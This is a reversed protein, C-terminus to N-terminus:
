EASSQAAAECSAPPRWAARDARSLQHLPGAQGRFGQLVWHLSIRRQGDAAGPESTTGGIQRALGELMRASIPDDHWEERQDTAFSIWAKGGVAKLTGHIPPPHAPGQVSLLLLAQLSWLAVPIAADIDVTLQGSHGEATFDIDARLERRLVPLIAEFLQDLRVPTLEGGDYLLRYVAGLLGVHLRAESLAHVASPDEVHSERLALFSGIVQLNNRVRHHLEHTLAKQHHIGQQLTRNRRAILHAMRRLEAALGRVEAPAGAFQRASVRYEGRGVESAITRLNSIWRLIAQNTGLWIGASAIILAAIPIAFHSILFDNGHGFLDPRRAAYILHLSNDPRSGVHLPAKSFAWPRGDPDEVVHVSGPMGSVPLSGWHLPLSSVVPRGTGDVIAVVADNSAQRARLLKRLDDLDVSATIAGAFSGDPAALPRVAWIVVGGSHRGRVPATVTFGGGNVIERWFEREAVSVGVAQPNSACRIRGDTGIVSLHSFAMLTDRVEALRANCANTPADVIDSSSGLVALLRESRSLSNQESYATLLAADALRRHLEDRDDEVRAIGQFATLAALPLLTLLLILLLTRRIPQGKLGPKAPRTGAEASRTNRLEIPTKAQM